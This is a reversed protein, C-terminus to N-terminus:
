VKQANLISRIHVSVSLMVLPLYVNRRLLELAREVAALCQELQRHGFRGVFSNLDATQDINFIVTSQERVIVADRFFVHLMVLLNEVEDRKNGTMYEEQDDFFKLSSAGLISRLFKVADTRYRNLDDNLMQLARHYSGGALRSIFVAQQEEINERRVLAVAIEEDTLRSCHILQCRSIITPKLQEKRATTLFFHVHELPEELIKLLSNAAADNMSDAEFIIFVKKGRETSSMSSERKIERISRILINKAKPIEIRFYPNKAKEATQRRIEETFESEPTDRDENKDGDTGPLPFILKLDPHQLTEVKRCSPCTGCATEAGSECLLTRACEIAVAEAGVGENGWLLYAHAIRQQRFATQVIRKVRSQGIVTDWNSHM